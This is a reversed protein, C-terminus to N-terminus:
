TLALFVEELGGTALKAKARLEDLTGEGVIEGSSLLVFRDCIRGADGLQHISLFLTRGSAAAEKLVSMVDRTQRLDLGDFPEDLMLLPQPTLLGIALLVRRHEGKSLEHLRAGRLPELALARMIEAAASRPAGHLGGAFELVWRVTQDPWPRIGDPVFYLANKRDGVAVATDGVAVTGLTAPAIGALCHFLTSKGSGNPGILGLIEGPRISFSAGRLAWFSGFRKSLNDVVIVAKSRTHPAYGGRALVLPSVMHLQLTAPAVNPLLVVNMNQEYQEM